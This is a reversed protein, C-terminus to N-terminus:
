WSELEQRLVASEEQRQEGDPLRDTDHNCRGDCKSRDGLVSARGRSRRKGGTELNCVALRTARRAAVESPPDATTNETSNGQQDEDSSEEEEVELFRGFIKDSSALFLGGDFDQVLNGPVVLTSRGLQCHLVKGLDVGLHANNDRVNLM